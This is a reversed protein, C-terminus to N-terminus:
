KHILKVGKTKEANENEFDDTGIAIDEKDLNLEANLISQKKLLAKLKDDHEFPKGLQATMVELDKELNGLRETKSDLDVPIDKIANEIKIINGHLSDGLVIEYTNCGKIILKEEGGIYVPKKYLLEFGDKEGVSLKSGFEMVSFNSKIIRFLEKGAQAREEFYTNGIKIGDKVNATYTIIDKELNEIYGKCAKIRQPFNKYVNDELNFKMQKYSAELLRLRDVEMDVEMKVMIKPNGTAISKIEAYSLAKEDIDDISRQTLDGRKLQSIGKHKREITQWIYSDFSGETVYRYIEIEKNSNGQRWIRGERQTIDSPRWPVDIHHLAILKHQINTGAGLKSTSGIIIRKTGRRIENFMAEKKAETNYDHIVAIQDRPIGKIMLLNRITEYTSYSGDAKPTGLDCFIIQTLSEEQTQYYINSVNNVVVSVKSNPDNPLNPNILRMDTAGKRGDNTVCLANDVSPDVRGTRIDEMREVCDAILKKLEECPPVSVITPKDGRLKPKPLDLTDETQVDAFERYMTILEPVNKFKCFRQKTRFGSGDPAVELATIVEGFNAAWSDFLDLGTKKLKNYSLYRQMTFCEAISNSIPTGTSFVIGRSNTKNDIYRCKLFMDFAKKSSATTIGSINRMKTLVFLNKFEHAEDVVLRDIGMQEFTLIDDKRNEDLMRELRVELKKRTSELQKVLRGKGKEYKAETIADNIYQMQEKFYTNKTEPSLSIKEFQSHSVIVTDWDGNAIRAFLKKRNKREFDKKTTVLINANPYLKNFDAGIQDTLHNPVVMLAKNSLGLRKHEMIAAIMIFTKGGGVCHDLLVNGNSYLIRAVADKQHRRFEIEKNMGFFNLHSGDFKRLRTNNFLENYKKVINERREPNEFIWESFRDKLIAQKEQAKITEKINKVRTTKDIQDYVVPTQLNLAKEVLSYADVRSTGYTVVSNASTRDKGDIIWGNVETSYIVSLYKQTYIDPEITEIIFEKIIEPDIWTAGLSISIESAELDKPLVKELAEVNLNYEPEKEAFVKATVLKERINGSLYEDATVYCNLQPDKYIINRLESVIDEATKDACLSAIYDVDVKGRQALSVRLGEEATDVETIEITKNITRKNFIDAKTIIKENNIVNVNELSLLFCADADDCFARKNAGSSLYGYKKVFKDYLTNLQTQEKSLLEDNECLLQIDLVERAKERIAIQGTIREKILGMINEQEFMVSGNRRYLRGDVEKYCYNKVNLDAPIIRATNETDELDLDAIKYIDKPLRRIAESLQKDFPIDTNPKLTITEGGYMNTDHTLTGLMMHPNKIFYENLIMGQENEGTFVWNDIDTANEIQKPYERKQLFIIDSVVETNASKFATEPLRVAGLFEAREYLYRRVNSNSKDLTGKSTVFAVIGGPRVKDLAKSFFFDHILFNYKDYRSDAVSYNGFPVNSVSVDFFDDPYETKEFGKIEIEAQQYLQKALRGTLNDLEVGYLRSNQMSDPLLSFFRGTGLAPELINGGKFGFGELANYISNIIVPPTYHANLTSARASEYEAESLLEKLETYENSWKENNGDFAQPMGGWGVYGALTKQEDATASRNESEITHLLKIAEINASYKSKISSMGIEDDPLSRYNIKEPTREVSVDIDESVLNNEITYYKGEDILQRINAAANLWSLNTKKEEGNEDFWDFSIGKSDYNVFGINKEAGSFGGIGYENKLFRAFESNSPNNVAYEYIRQKGGVVNSGRLLINDTIQQHHSKSEFFALQSLRHKAKATNDRQEDRVGHGRDDSEAQIHGHLQRQKTESVKGGTTEEYTGYVSENQGGAVPHVADAKPQSVSEYVQTAPAKEYAGGGHTRIQGREQIGAGEPQLGGLSHGGTYARLTDGNDANRQGYLGGREHLKGHEKEEKIYQRISKEISKIYQLTHKNALRACAHMEEKPSLPLPLDNARGLRSMVSTYISNVLLTNFNESYSNYEDFGIQNISPSSSIIDYLMKDFSISDPVARGSLAEIVYKEGASGDPLRLIIPKRKGNTQSIDFVRKYDNTTPDKSFIKIGHAGRNIYRGSKNWEDFTAVVTANPNGAYVLVADEFPYKCIGGSFSIFSKWSDESLTIKEITEDYLQTLKNEANAVNRAVEKKETYLEDKIKEKLEYFGQHKINKLWDYLFQNLETCLKRSFRKQDDAYVKQYIGLADLQYTLVDILHSKSDVTFTIEPDCMRDGNQWYYHGISYEDGGIREIVLPMYPENEIKIYDDLLPLINEYNSQQISNRM